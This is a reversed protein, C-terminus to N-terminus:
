YDDHPRNSPFQNNNNNFRPYVDNHTSGRYRGRGRFNGRFNGRGRNPSSEPQPHHAAAITAAAHLHSLAETSFVSNNKQLQRFFKATHQDFSSSVWLNAYEGQLYNQQAAAIVFIIDRLERIDIFQDIDAALVKLITESYKACSALVNFKAQDERKIGTREANLKYETPVEYRSFNEKVQKFDSAIDPSDREAVSSLHSIGTPRRPTDSHPRTQRSYNPNQPKPKVGPNNFEQYTARRSPSVVAERTPQPLEFGSGATAGRVQDETILTILGRDAEIATLRKNISCLTTLLHPLEQHFRGQYDQVDSQSRNEKEM